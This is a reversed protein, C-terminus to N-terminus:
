QDAAACDRYVKTFRASSVTAIGQGIGSATASSEAFSRAWGRSSWTTGTGGRRVRTTPAFPCSPRASPSRHAPRPSTSRTPRSWSSRASEPETAPKSKAGYPVMTLAAAYVATSVASDASPRAAAQATFTSPVAPGTRAPRRSLRHQHVDGAVVDEVAGDLDVRL